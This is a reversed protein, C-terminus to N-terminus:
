PEGQGLRKDTFIKIATKKARYVSGEGGTAEYDNPRLTLPGRGSLVVKVSGGVKTMKPRRM